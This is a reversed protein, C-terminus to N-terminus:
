EAFYSEASVTASSQVDGLDLDDQTVQYSVDCSFIEGPLAIPSACELCGSGLNPERLCFDHLTKSGSNEVKFTFTIIEGVSSYVDGGGDAWVGTTALTVSPVGCTQSPDVVDVAISAPVLPHTAPSTGDDSYSVNVLTELSGGVSSCECADVAYAMERLSDDLMAINWTLTAGDASCTDGDCVLSTPTGLVVATIEVNNACATVIRSVLEEAFSEDLNGFDELDLVYDDIDYDEAHPGGIAQRAPFVVRTADNKAVQAMDATHKIADGLCTLSYAPWQPDMGTPQYFMADVVELANILTSSINYSNPYAFTGLRPIWYKPNTNPAKRQGYCEVNYKRVCQEESTDGLMETPNWSFETLAIRGGSDFLSA